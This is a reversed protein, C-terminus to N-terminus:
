VSTPFCGFLWALQSLLHVPQHGSGAGQSFFFIGLHSGLLAQLNWISSCSLPARTFLMFLFTLYRSKMDGLFLILNARLFLLSDAWGQTGGGSALNVFKLSGCTEAPYQYRVEGNQCFFFFFRLWAVFPAYCSGKNPSSTCCFAKSSIFCTRLFAGPKPSGFIELVKKKYRCSPELTM